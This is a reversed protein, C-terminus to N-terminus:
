VISNWLSKWVDILDGGEYSISMEQDAFIEERDKSVIHPEPITEDVKEYSQGVDYGNIDVESCCLSFPVKGFEPRAGNGEWRNQNGHEKDGM